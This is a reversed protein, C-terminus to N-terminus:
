ASITENISVHMEGSDDIEDLRCAVLTNVLGADYPVKVKVYNDTFGHMYGSKNDSEFLVTRTSGIQTEYFAHLKKTSLNRLMRTREKRIALPVVNSYDAAPTNDRESYTFVHLYSVPLGSIFNYTAMFEEDTEGPFGTIVDAGICADPMKSKIYNVREAYLGSLYRRKMAKLVVDSGSQLPIHFHPMFSSSRSVMEVIRNNLLNPEISSIRFRPADPLINLQNILELFSSERIATATNYIGYDGLNIGTLVIEKAGSRIIELVDEVVKSLQNSRSAGRALPITCFTCSYDCGDQVKLFVRTRENSSHSGIFSNVDSIECAHVLAPGKQVLNSLHTVVNFKENAGLVLDVGPITAIIEPKLQAFCGTVVILAEPNASLAKNVIARCERDANETVSCTNILYVEAGVDFGVKHYGSEILTKGITSTEAFNLKCGLTHFAITRNTNVPYCFYHFDLSVSGLLNDILL